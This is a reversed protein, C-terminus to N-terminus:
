RIEYGMRQSGALETGMMEMIGNRQLVLDTEEMIQNLYSSTVPQAQRITRDLYADRSVSAVLSVMVGNVDTLATTSSQVGLFGGGTSFVTVSSRDFFETSSTSTAM